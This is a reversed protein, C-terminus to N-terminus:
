TRNALPNRSASDDDIQVMFECESECVPGQVTVTLLFDSDCVNNADVCVTDGTATTGGGCFTADGTIEWEFTVGQMGTTEAVTYQISEEGPCVLDPGSIECVPTPELPFPVLAFDKLEATFSASSRTKIQVTTDDACEDIVVGLDTLNIAVEVFQLALM